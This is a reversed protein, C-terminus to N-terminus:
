RGCFQRCVDAGYKGLYNDFVVVADLDRSLVLFGEFVFKIPIGRILQLKSIPELGAFDLVRALTGITFSDHRVLRNSRASPM